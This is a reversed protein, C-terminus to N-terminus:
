KDKPVLTLRTAETKSYGHEIFHSLKSAVEVWQGHPIAAGEFCVCTLAATRIYQPGRGIADVFDNYPESTRRSGDDGDPPDIDGGDHVPDEVVTILETADPM